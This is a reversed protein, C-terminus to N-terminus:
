QINKKIMNSKILKAVKILPLMTLLVNKMLIPLVKLSVAKETIENLQRRTLIRSYFVFNRVFAYENFTAIINRGFFNNIWNFYDVNISFKRKAIEKQRNPTINAYSKRWYVKGGDINCIGKEDAFKVWTAIDAGWALDFNQFGGTEEFVKRSFVYEVVFSDLDDNEKGKYFDLSTLIKPFRRCKFIVHNNEDIADIDFHYLDFNAGKVIEQYFCEVCDPSMMDDDSFLWIWPEGNTLEICRNWQAVLDKGGLNESFRKFVIDLLNEYKKIIQEFDAKSADIGIYVTFNKNTQKALSELVSEFFDIKYAPIVIALQEM